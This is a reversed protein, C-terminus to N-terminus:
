GRKDSLAPKGAKSDSSRSKRRRPQSRALSQGFRRELWSQPITLISVMFLYWISAVILLPIVQFTQSYVHQLNTMLDAGAIVSVLSTTKLMLIVENGMPPIIVRIAQPMVVRRFTRFRTMGVSRAAEVQGRPVSLIGSRVIEASYAAENLSLALMAAVMPTVVQATPVSFITGIGPLSLSLEPIFIGLYGWFILQVLIPTGRFLWTYLRAIGSLVSNDSLHMMALVVAGALGAAMSVTTLFLTVGVGRLTVDKFLYELIVDQDVVPNELLKWLAFALVAVCAAAAVPMWPRRRPVLPADDPVNPGAALRANQKLAPQSFVSSREIEM